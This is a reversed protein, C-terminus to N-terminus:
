QPSSDSNPRGQFANFASNLSHRKMRVLGFYWLFIIFPFFLILAWTKELMLLFDYIGHLLFPMFFAMFLNFLRREPLFKALGFRYGMVVGFLAHAPVATLARMYGIQYGAQVTQASTVYLINEVLAFGLSVFAAYVIGDFRENFHRSGFFILIVALWKFLEETFAAVGFANLFAATEGTYRQVHDSIYQEMFLIPIVIIAGAIIAKILMWIPEKEYKDRYYIYFILIAVPAAALLILTMPYFKLIFIYINQIISIFFLKLHIGDPM